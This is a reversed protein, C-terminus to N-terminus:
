ASTGRALRTRALADPMIEFHSPVLRLTGAGSSLRALDAQLGGGETLPLEARVVYAGDRFDTGRIRGRRAAIRGLLGGLAPAFCAAELVGYPELLAARAAALAARVAAAGATQFDRAHSDQRNRGGDVVEVELDVVPFGGLPGRRLAEHVGKELAPLFEEPIRGEIISSRFAFGAGRELPRVRLDVIAYQGPGGNQKKLKHYGRAEARITERFM